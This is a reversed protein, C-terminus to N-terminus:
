GPGAAVINGVLVQHTAIVRHRLRKAEFSVHGPRHRHDPIPFLRSEVTRGISTSTSSGGPTELVESTFGRNKPLRPPRSGLIPPVRITALTAHPDHPVPRRTFASNQSLHPAGVPTGPSVALYLCTVTNDGVHHARHIDRGGHVDLPQALDHGLQRV